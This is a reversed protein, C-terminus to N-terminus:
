IAEKVYQERNNQETQIIQTNWNNGHDSTLSHNAIESYTDMNRVSRQHEKTREDITRNTEGIHSWDCHIVCTDCM